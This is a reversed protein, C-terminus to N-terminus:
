NLGPVNENNLLYMHSRSVTNSLGARPPRGLGAGGHGQSYEAQWPPVCKMQPASREESHWAWAGTVPPRRGTLAQMGAQWGGM